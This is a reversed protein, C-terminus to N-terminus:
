REGPEPEWRLHDDQRHAPIQTEPEGVTVDFFGHRLPADLNVMDADEAPHLAERRQQRVRCARALM